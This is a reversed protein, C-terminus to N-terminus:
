PCYQEKFGQHERELEDQLMKYVDQWDQKYYEFKRDAIDGFTKSSYFMDSASNVDVRKDKVLNNL